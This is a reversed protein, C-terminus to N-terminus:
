SSSRRTAQMAAPGLLSRSRVHRRRRPQAVVGAILLLSITGPTPVVLYQYDSGFEVISRDAIQQLQSQSLVASLTLRYEISNSVARQSGPVNIVPPSAAIGGFPGNVNPDAVGNFSVTGGGGQGMSTSIVQSFSELLDGGGDNTWLWEDAVSDGAGLDSWAGIGTSAAGIIANDGSTISIGNGLNFALSVLLSDSVEAGGPVGTSTNTLVITLTLGDVRFSASAALGNLPNTNAGGADATYHVIINAPCAVAPVLIAAAVVACRHLPPTM